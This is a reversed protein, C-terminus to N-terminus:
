HDLRKDLRNKGWIQEIIKIATNPGLKRQKEMTRQIFVCHSLTANEKAIDNALAQCSPAGCAGCDFGPLYAMMRQSVQKRKLATRRDKALAVAPRAEIDGLFLYKDWDPEWKKLDHNRVRDANREDYLEARQLLREVSLFRNWSTLIGGACSEDCVRMELFDIEPAEENEVKELFESTNRMGDVALCRGTINSSEGRTLSWKVSKGTITNKQSEFGELDKKQNIVVQVKNFIMDLNFVGDIVSKSGDAPRKVAAIKAACPTVYFIGVKGQENSNGYKDRLFEAAVDVPPKIRSINEILSPFRIQVLRVVAPCFSSIVPHEGDYTELMKNIGTNVLEVAQEVEYVHTFGIENLAQYITSTRVNDSFQGVLVSPVLAIRTAYEDLCSFDDDNVGIAEVPCAKYCEGCDICFDPHISATGSWIRIAETPCVQMCHSCGICKDEDVYISHYLTKTETEM